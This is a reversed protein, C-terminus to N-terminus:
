KKSKKDKKKIAKSKDLKEVKKEKSPLKMLGKTKEIILEGDFSSIDSSSDQDKQKKAPKKKAEVSSESSDSEEASGTIDLMEDITDDNKVLYRGPAKVATASFKKAMDNYADDWFSDNWKFKSSPTEM